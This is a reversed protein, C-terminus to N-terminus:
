RRPNGDDRHRAEECAHSSPRFKTRPHDQMQFRLVRYFQLFYQGRIEDRGM